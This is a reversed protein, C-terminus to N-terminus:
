CFPAVGMGVDQQRHAVDPGVSEAFFVSGPIGGARQSRSPIM